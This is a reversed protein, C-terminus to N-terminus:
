TFAGIAHVPVRFEPRIGARSVTLYVDGSGAPSSKRGQVRVQSLGNACNAARYRAVAHPRGCGLFACQFGGAGPRRGTRGRLKSDIRGRAPSMAAQLSDRSETVGGVTV